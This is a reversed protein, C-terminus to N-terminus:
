PLQDFESMLQCLLQNCKRNDTTKNSQEIARIIDTLSKKQSDSAHQYHKALAVEVQKAKELAHWCGFPAVEDRSAKEESVCEFACYNGFDGEPNKSIVEKVFQSQCCKMGTMCDSDTKCPDALSNGMMGVCIITFSGIIKMKM